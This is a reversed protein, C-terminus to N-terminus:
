KLHQKVATYKPLLIPQTAQSRNLDETSMLSTCKINLWGRVNIFPDKALQENKSVRYPCFNPFVQGDCDEGVQQWLAPRVCNHLIDKNATHLTVTERGGFWFAWVQELMVSHACLSHVGTREGGANGSRVVARSASLAWIGVAVSWFDAPNKYKQWSCVSSLYKITYFPM